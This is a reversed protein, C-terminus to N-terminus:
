SSKENQIKGECAAGNPSSSGAGDGWGLGLVKGLSLRLSDYVAQHPAPHISNVVHEHILGTIPSFTYTSEIEWEAPQGSVRGVGNVVQRIRISKERNMRPKKTSYGRNDLESPLQPTNVVMKPINVTLDSYIANMTHKVFSASALYLQFGEVHLTKPFPTPLAVPPTYSLRINPSYICEDINEVVYHELFNTNASPNSTSPSPHPFGTTKDISTILGSTFFNPLTEQIVFIARGTRIEWEQDTVDPPTDQRPGPLSDPPRHSRLGLDSNNVLDVTRLGPSTSVLHSTHFAISDHKPLHRSVKHLLCRRKPFILRSPSALCAHRSLM